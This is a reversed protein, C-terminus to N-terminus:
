ILFFFIIIGKKRTEIYYGLLPGKGSPSNLWHLDVGTPTRTLSLQKPAVPSGEQPGTSINGWVPPGLDNTMARVSFTYGVEEELGGVVLTTDTVKQKVQKSFETYYLHFSFYIM